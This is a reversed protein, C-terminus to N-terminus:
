RRQLAAGRDSLELMETTDTCTKYASVAAAAEELDRELGVRDAKLKVQDNLHCCPHVHSM